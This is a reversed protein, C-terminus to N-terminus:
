ASHTLNDILHWTCADAVGITITFMAIVFLKRQPPVRHLMCESIGPQISAPKCISCSAALRLATLRKAHLGSQSKEHCGSLRGDNRAHARWSSCRKSTCSGHQSWVQLEVGLLSILNSEDHAHCTPCSQIQSYLHQTVAIVLTNGISAPPTCKQM